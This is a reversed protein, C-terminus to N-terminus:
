KFNRGKRYENTHRSISVPVTMQLLYDDSNAVSIEDAVYLNYVPGCFLLDHKNAFAEMREPLDNTQGYYGRTYGILSLGGEWTTKGNPDLSFFREPRTSENLFAQFDDWYGGIPFSMNLKTIHYSECFQLYERMFGTEGTYDAREGLLIQRKPLDKIIIESENASIAENLLGTIVGIVSLTEQLLSVRESINNGYKNLVKLVKEPTRTENLEIIEDLPVDIERLVRIMKATTIQRPSYFRYSNKSGDGREAAVFAGIADYHRLASPSIGVHKSFEKITFMDKKRNYVKM